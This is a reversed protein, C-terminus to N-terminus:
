KIYSEFHIHFNQSYLVLHLFPQANWSMLWTSITSIMTIFSYKNKKITMSLQPLWVVVGKQMSDARGKFSNEYKVTSGGNLTGEYLAKVWKISVKLAKRLKTNFDMAGLIIRLNPNRNTILVDM